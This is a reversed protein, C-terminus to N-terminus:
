VHVPWHGCPACVQSPGWLRMYDPDGPQWRVESSTGFDFQERQDVQGKTLEAGFRSYGFFHPSHIMRIREKEDAPLDFFQPAYKIVADIDERPIPHNKLYYFGVNTLANRLDSLFQPKTQPDSALAFDLIPISLFNTAM